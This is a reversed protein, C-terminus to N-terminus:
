VSARNLRISGHVNTGDVSDVNTGFNAASCVGDLPNLTDVHVARREATDVVLGSLSLKCICLLSWSISQAARSVYSYTFCDVLELRCRLVPLTGNGSGVDIVTAPPLVIVSHISVLLEISKPMRIAFTYIGSDGKSVYPLHLTPRTRVAGDQGDSLLPRGDRLWRGRGLSLNYKEVIIRSPIRVTLKVHDDVPVQLILPRKFTKYLELQLRELREFSDAPDTCSNSFTARHLFSKCSTAKGPCHQDQALKGCLPLCSAPRWSSSAADAASRAVACVFLSVVAVSSGPLLM